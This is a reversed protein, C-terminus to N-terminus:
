GVQLPCDEKVSNPVGQEELSLPCPDPLPNEKESDEKNRKRKTVLDTNKV